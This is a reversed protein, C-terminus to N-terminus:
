SSFPLMLDINLLEAFERMKNYTLSDIGEFGTRSRLLSPGQGQFPLIKSKREKILIAQKMDEFRDETIHRGPDGSFFDKYVDSLEEERELSTSAMFMPIVTDGMEEVGGMSFYSLGRLDRIEQYLPSELGNTICDVAFDLAAIETKDQTILNSIGLLGVVSKDEKPVIELPLKSDETFSFTHPMNYGIRTVSTDVVFDESAVLVISDPHLFARSRTISDEYTFKVIDEKFGIAGCYGYHKRLLNSYTGDTQSNFSDGYEQLVTQKEALFSTEDWLPTATRINTIWEEQVQKLSEELGSLYFVTRDDSTYANYSLGLRKIKPLMKDFPKCMLHEMLHSVGRKGPLEQLAAFNYGLGLFAMGIDNKIFTKM